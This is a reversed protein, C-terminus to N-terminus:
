EEDEESENSEDRMLEKHCGPPLMENVNKNYLFSKMLLIRVLESEEKFKIESIIM